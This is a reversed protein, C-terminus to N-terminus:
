NKGANDQSLFGENFRRTTEKRLDRLTQKEDEPLQKVWDLYCKPLARPPRKLWNRVHELKGCYRFSFSMLSFLAVLSLNPIGFGGYSSESSTKPFSSFKMM